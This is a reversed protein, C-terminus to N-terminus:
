KTFIKGLTLGANSRERTSRNYDSGGHSGGSEYVTKEIVPAVPRNEFIMSLLNKIGAINGHHLFGGLYTTSGITRPSPTTIGNYEKL